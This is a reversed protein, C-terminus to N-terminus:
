VLIQEIYCFCRSIGPPIHLYVMYKIDKIRIGIFVHLRSGLFKAVQNFGLHIQAVKARRTQRFLQDQSNTPAVLSLRSPSHFQFQLDHSICSPSIKAAISSDVSHLIHTSSSSTVPDKFNCNKVLKM